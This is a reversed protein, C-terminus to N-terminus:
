IVDGTRRSCKAKRSTRFFKLLKPYVILDMDEMPIAGLPVSDGMVMAGVSRLSDEFELRVPVAYPVEAIHANALKVERKQLEELKLQLAIAETICLHTTGTDVMGNVEMPKLTTDSANSLKINATVKGM